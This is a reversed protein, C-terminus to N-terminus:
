ASSHNPLPSMEPSKVPPNEATNTPSGAGEPQRPDRATTEEPNRAQFWTKFLSPPKLLFHFSIQCGKGPRSAVQCVGGIEALRLKMNVLGNREQRVQASDFGHGNDAVVVNLQSGVLEIRLTLQTAQSHKAANNVAEKIALFL